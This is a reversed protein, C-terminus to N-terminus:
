KPLGLRVVEDSLIVDGTVLRQCRLILDRLLNVSLGLVALFCRSGRNLSGGGGRFLSDSLSAGLQRL